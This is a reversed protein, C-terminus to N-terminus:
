TRARMAESRQALLKDIQHPIDKHRLRYGHADYGRQALRLQGDIRAITEAPTM